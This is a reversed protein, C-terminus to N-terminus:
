WVTFLVAHIFPVSYGLIHQHATLFSSVWVWATSLSQKTIHWKSANYSTFSTTCFTDPASLGTGIRNSSASKECESLADFGSRYENKNRRFTNINYNWLGETQYYIPILRHTTCLYYLLGVSENQMGWKLVAMVYSYTSSTMQESASATM